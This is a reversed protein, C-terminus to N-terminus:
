RFIVKITEAPTPLRGDLLARIEGYHRAKEADTIWKHSPFPAVFLLSERWRGALGYEVNVGRKLGAFHRFVDKGTFCVVRPKLRAVRRRFRVAAEAYEADTIEKAERTPRDPVLDTIGFNHDFLQSDDRIEPALGSKRLIRWLSGHAYYRGREWSYPHPNFGVFLVDLGPRLFPKLM